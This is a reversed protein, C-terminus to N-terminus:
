KGWSRLVGAARHENYIFLVMTQFRQQNRRRQSMANCFEKFRTPLSVAYLRRGPLQGQRM